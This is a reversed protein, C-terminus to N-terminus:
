IRCCFGYKGEGHPFPIVFGIQSLHNSSNSFNSNSNVFSIKNELNNYFFGASFLGNKTLAFVAPNVLGSSFGANYAIGSNGM